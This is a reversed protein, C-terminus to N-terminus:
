ISVYINHRQGSILHKRSLVHPEHTIIHSLTLSLTEDFLIDGNTYGYFYSEYNRVIVQWMSRLVPYTDNNCHPAVLVDWGKNCATVILKVMGPDNTELPTLFLVPKLGPVKPWVHITNNFIYLKDKREYMTTALTLLGTQKKHVCIQAHPIDTNKHLVPIEHPLNYIKCRQKAIKAAIENYNTELSPQVLPLPKSKVVPTYFRQLLLYALFPPSDKPQIM